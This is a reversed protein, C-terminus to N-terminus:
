ASTPTSSDPVSASRRLSVEACRFGANLSNNSPISALIRPQGGLRRIEVRQDLRDREVVHHYLPHQRERALVEDDVEVLALARQRPEHLAEVEDRPVFVPVDREPWKRRSM